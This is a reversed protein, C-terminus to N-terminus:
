SLLDQFLEAPPPDVVPEVGLWTRLAAADDDTFELGARSASDLVSRLVADGIEESTPAPDANLPAGALVCARVVFAFASRPIDVGQAAAHDRSWRTSEALRFEHLRSYAELTRFVVPWRDNTIRPLQVIQRFIAVEPPPGTADVSPISEEAPIHRRGDWAYHTSTQLGELGVLDLAKAFTGAGFWGQARLPGFTGILASSWRSLNLPETAGNYNSRVEDVFRQWTDTDVGAPRAGSECPRPAGEAAPRARAGVADQTVRTDVDEALEVDVAEPVRMLDLVDQEDLYVDALSEYAVATGSTAIMLIRRDDARVVQLLHTFDSDSSAVAVEDYRTTARLATMIDVTMRIDAGNKSRTLSPCDVVEFGAQTFFPRFKSFFLREGPRTPHSVSGAPNMYCRLVLWRQGNESHVSRLRHVWVSPKQAVEMAAAPDVELLGSFFNDFDIYLASRM